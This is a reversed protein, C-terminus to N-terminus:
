FLDQLGARATTVLEHVAAEAGDPDRRRIAEVLRDHPQVHGEAVVRNSHCYRWFRLNHLLLTEALPFLYPNRVLQALRVHAAHDVKLFALYDGAKGAEDVADFMQRVEGLEADSVKACVERIVGIELIERAELMSLVDALSMSAVVMGRRPMVSLFGERALRAVAERVPMRGLEVDRSLQLENILAGPPYTLDVIRDRLLEYAEDSARAPADDTM